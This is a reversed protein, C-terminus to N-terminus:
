SPTFRLTSRIQGGQDICTGEVAPPGGQRERNPRHDRSPLVTSRLRSDRHSHIEPRPFEPSELVPLEPYGPFGYM